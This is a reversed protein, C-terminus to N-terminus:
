VVVASGTDTSDAQGALAAYLRNARSLQSALEALLARRLVASVDDDAEMLARSRDASLRLLHVPGRARVSAVRTRGRLVGAVGLLSPPELFGVLVREGDGGTPAPDARFVECQGAVLVYLADPTDGESIFTRGKVQVAEFAAALAELPAAPADTLAPIQRLAAAADLDVPEFGLPSDTTTM